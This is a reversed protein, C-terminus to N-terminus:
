RPEISFTIATNKGDSATNIVVIGQQDKNKIDFVYNTDSVKKQSFDWGLGKFSANFFEVVKALEDETQYTAGWYKKDFAVSEVVKSNEYFPLKPFEDALVGKKYPSEEKKAGGTGFNPLCGALVFSFILLFLVKSIM